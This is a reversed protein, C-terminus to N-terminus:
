SAQHHNKVLEMQNYAGCKPCKYFAHTVRGIRFSKLIIHGCHGCTYDRDGEGVIFPEMKRPQPFNDKHLIIGVGPSTFIKM